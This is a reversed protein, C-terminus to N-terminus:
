TRRFPLHPPLALVDALREQAAFIGLLPGKLDLMPISRRLGGDGGLRAIRLGETVEHAQIPLVELLYTIPDTARLRRTKGEQFGVRAGEQRLKISFTQDLESFFSCALAGTRDSQADVDVVKM